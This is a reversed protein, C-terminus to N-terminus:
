WHANDDEPTLRLALRSGRQNILYIRSAARGQAAPRPEDGYRVAEVRAPVAVFEAMRTQFMHGPFTLHPWNTQSVLEGGILESQRLIAARDEHGRKSLAFVLVALGATLLLVIALTAKNMALQAKGQVM